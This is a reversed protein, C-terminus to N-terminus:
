AAGPGEGAVRGPFLVAEAVGLATALAAREAATPEDHGRGLLSLRAASIRARRAVVFQTLGSKLRCLKLESPVSCTMHARRRQGDHCRARPYARGPSATVRPCAFIAQERRNAPFVAPPDRVTRHLVVGEPVRLRAAFALITLLAM